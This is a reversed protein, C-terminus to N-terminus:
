NLLHIVVSYVMLYRVHNGTPTLTLFILAPSPSPNGSWCTCFKSTMVGMRIVLFHHVFQFDTVKKSSVLSSLKCVAGRFDLSVALDLSGSVQFLAELAVGCCNPYNQCIAAPWPHVGMVSFSRSVVTKPPGSVKMPKEELIGVLNEGHFGM